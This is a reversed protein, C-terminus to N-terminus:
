FKELIRLGAPTGGTIYGIAGPTSRVFSIVEADSGKVAPASLGERFSKKTWRAAYKRADTQLIKALFETQLASNDVPVLTLHGALQKEGLFVDRIEDPSLDVSPHAIVEGATADTPALLAALVAVLVLLRVPMTM